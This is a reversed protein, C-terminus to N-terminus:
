FCKRIKENKTLVQTNLKHWLAVQHELKFEFQSCGFIEDIEFTKTTDEDINFLAKLATGHKEVASPYRSQLKGCLFESNKEHTDFGSMYLMSYSPYVTGIKPITRSM